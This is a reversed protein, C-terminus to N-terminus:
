FTKIISKSCFNHKYKYLASGNSLHIARCKKIISMNYKEDKLVRIAFNYDSRPGVMEKDYVQFPYQQWIEKSAGTFVWGTFGSNIINPLEEIEHTKYSAKFLDSVQLWAFFPNIFNIKKPNIVTTELTNQRVVCWGSVIPLFQLYYKLLDFKNKGIMADDSTIFYNKFNSENIFNNILPVLEYETYGKFYIKECDLEDNAKIVPELDRISMVMLVTDKM